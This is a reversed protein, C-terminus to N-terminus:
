LWRKRKQVDVRGPLKLFHDRKTITTRRLKAEIQNNVGILFAQAGADPWERMSRGHVGVDHFGFRELLRELLVTKIRSEASRAAVLFPAPGFLSHKRKSCRRM